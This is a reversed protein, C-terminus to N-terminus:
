LTLGLRRWDHILSVALEAIATQWGGPADRWEFQGVALRSAAATERPVVVLGRAQAVYGGLRDVDLMSGTAPMKNVVLTIPRGSRGLLAGAEAVLSAAAPQEDTVLVLQDAAAIAARAPPEQLGTGCDLMVIGVFEKLRAVVKTYAAEDLEAMRDPDTPAPLVMLGHAARGLQADLETLTLNPQDLRALLDDVFVRADPALVRGLSGYDPNTDVAVIRDRRLLSLLSGLLATITTKGVGGKPSVVAITVCRRLRPEGIMGCLTEIYDSSRWTNRARELASQKQKVTLSAPTPRPPAEKRVPYEISPTPAGGDESPGGFFAGLAAGIRQGKSIKPPLIQATRQAPTLDDDPVPPVPPPAPTHGPRARDLYLIQGDLIGSAELTGAPELPENGTASLTWAAPDLVGGEDLQGAIEILPPLLERIPADSPLSLDRRGAPGVITVLMTKSTM